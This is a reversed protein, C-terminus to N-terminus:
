LSINWTHVSLSLNRHGTHVSNHIQPYLWHWPLCYDKADTRGRSCNQYKTTKKLRHRGYGTNHWIGEICYTPSHHHLRTTGLSVNDVLVCQMAPSDDVLYLTTCGEELTSEWVDKSSCTTGKHQNEIILDLVEKELLFMWTQWSSVNCRVDHVMWWRVM